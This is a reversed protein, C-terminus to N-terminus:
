YPVTYFELANTGNKETGDNKNGYRNEAGRHVLVPLLQGIRSCLSVRRLWTTMRQPQVTTPRNHVHMYTRITDAFVMGVCM